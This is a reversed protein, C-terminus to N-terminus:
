SLQKRSRGARSRGSSQPVTGEPVICYITDLVYCVTLLSCTFLGLTISIMSISVDYKKAHHLELFRVIDERKITYYPRGSKGEEKNESFLPNSDLQSLIWASEEEISMRDVPASGM